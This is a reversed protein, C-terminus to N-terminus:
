GHLEQAEVFGLKAYENVKEIWYPIYQKRIGPTAAIAYWDQDYYDPLSEIQNELAAVIDKEEYVVNKEAEEEASDALLVNCICNMLIDDVLKKVEPTFDPSM